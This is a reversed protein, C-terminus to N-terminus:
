LRISNVVEKEEGKKLVFYANYLSRNHVKGKLEKIKDMSKQVGMFFFANALVEATTANPAIVTVAEIEEDTTEVPLYKKWFASNGYYEDDTTITAVGANRVKFKVQAKGYKQVIKKSGFYYTVNAAKISGDKVAKTKILEKVLM